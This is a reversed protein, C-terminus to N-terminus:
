QQATPINGLAEKVKSKVLAALKHQDVLHVGDNLIVYPIWVPNTPAGRLKKVMMQKIPIGLEQLNPDIRTDIIGDVLYELNNKLEVLADTTVHLTVLTVINKGKSVVARLTRVFDLIGRVDLTFMLENLSDLIVLGKNNVNDSLELIANIISLTNDPRVEKVAFHYLNQQKFAGLRFSFGDILKFLGKDIYESLNWGFSEFVKVVSLSDDDLTVYIIPENNLMFNMALHCLLVTKGTGANGSLLILSNRPIGEPAGLDVPAINSKIKESM